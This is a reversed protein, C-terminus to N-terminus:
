KIPVFRDTAWRYALAPRLYPAVRAYDGDALYSAMQHSFTLTLDDPSYHASALIFPLMDAAAASQEAAEAKSLKGGDAAKAGDKDFWDAVTPNAFAQRALPQWRRDYIAVRSDPAPTLVTEILLIATDGRLPLLAIQCESAATLTASLSLDTLETIRSLGQMSNKTPTTSGSNFYDIMDLRANRGLLPLVSTPANAFATSATLQAYAPSFLGILATLTLLLPRMATKLDLTPM